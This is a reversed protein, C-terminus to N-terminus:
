KKALVLTTGDKLNTLRLKRGKRKWTMNAHGKDYKVTLTQGSSAWHGETVEPEARKRKPTHISIVKGASGFTIRMKGMRLKRKSLYRGKKDIAGVAEWNGVLKKNYEAKPSPAAAVPEAAPQRKRTVATRSDPPLLAVSDCTVKTLHARDCDLYTDPEYPYSKDILSCGNYRFCVPTGKKEKDHIHRGAVERVFLSMGVSRKGRSRVNWKSDHMYARLVSARKQSSWKPVARSLKREAAPFSAANPAEAKKADGRRALDDLNSPIMFCGSLSVAAVLTITYNNM